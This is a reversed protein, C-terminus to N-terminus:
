RVTGEKDVWSLAWEGVNILAGVIIIPILAGAVDLMGFIVTDM